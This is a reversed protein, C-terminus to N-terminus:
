EAEEDQLRNMREEIKQLTEDATECYVGAMVLVGSPQTAWTNGQAPAAAVGQFHDERPGYVALEFSLPRLDYSEFNGVLSYHSVPAIQIVLDGASFGDWIELVQVPAWDHLPNGPIETILGASALDDPGDPIRDNTFVYATYAHYMLWFVDTSYEALHADSWDEAPISELESRLDDLGMQYEAVKSKHYSAVAPHAAFAEIAPLLLVLVLAIAACVLSIIKIKAMM